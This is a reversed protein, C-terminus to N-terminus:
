KILLGMYGVQLHWIRAVENEPFLHQLKNVDWQGDNGMLSSVRLNAVIERQNSIPRRPSDDM